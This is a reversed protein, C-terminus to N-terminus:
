QGPEPYEIGVGEFLPQKKNFGFTIDKVGGCPMVEDNSAPYTRHNGVRFWVRKSEIEDSLITEDNQVTVSRVIAVIPMNRLFPNDLENSM